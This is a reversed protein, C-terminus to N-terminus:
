SLFITKIVNSQFSKSSHSRMHLNWLQIIGETRVLLSFAEFVEEDTSFGAKMRGADFLFAIERGRANGSM